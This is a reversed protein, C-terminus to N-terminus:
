WCCGSKEAPRVDNMSQGNGLKITGNREVQVKQTMQLVSICTNTCVTHKYMFSGNWILHYGHKM